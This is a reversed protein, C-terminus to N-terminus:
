GTQIGNQRGIYAKQLEMVGSPYFVVDDQAM